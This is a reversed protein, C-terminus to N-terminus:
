TISGDIKLNTVCPEDNNNFGLYDCNSNEHMFAM